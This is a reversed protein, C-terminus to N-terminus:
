VKEAVAAALKELAEDTEEFDLKKSGKTPTKRAKVLETLKLCCEYREKGDDRKRWEASQKRFKFTVTGEEGVPLPKTTELRVSPYHKKPPKSKSDALCCDHDYTMGLDM